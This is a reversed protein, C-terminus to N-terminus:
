AHKPISEVDDILELGKDLGMVDGRLGSGAKCHKGDWQYQRVPTCRPSATLQHAECLGQDATLRGRAAPTM